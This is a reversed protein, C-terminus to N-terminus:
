KRGGIGNDEYTCESCEVTPEACLKTFEPGLIATELLNQLNYAQYYRVIEEEMNSYGQKKIIKRLEVIKEDETKDLWAVCEIMNEIVLGDIQEVNKYNILPMIPKIFEQYALYYDLYDEVVANDDFTKDNTSYNKFGNLAYAYVRVYNYLYDRQSNDTPNKLVNKTLKGLNTLFKDMDSNEKTLYQLGDIRTLTEETITNTFYDAIISNFAVNFANDTYDNNLKVEKDVLTKDIRIIEFIDADGFFRTSKIKYARNVYNIADKESLNFLRKAEEYDSAYAEVKVDEENVEITDKIPEAEKESTQVESATEKKNIDKTTGNDKNGFLTYRNAYLAGLLSCVSVLLM